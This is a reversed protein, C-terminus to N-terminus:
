SKKLLSKSETKRNQMKERQTVRLYIILLIKLQQLETCNVTITKIHIKPKCCLELHFNM